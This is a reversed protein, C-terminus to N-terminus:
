EEYPDTSYEEEDVDQPDPPDQDRIWEAIEDHDELEAGRIATTDWPCPPDQSRLWKLIEFWGCEAAERCTSEDWPCPPDQSRLWRLTEFDGRAAARTCATSDWDCPMPLEYRLWKLIHIRGRSAAATTMASSWEFHPAQPATQLWQVIELHGWEIAALVCRENAPCPPQQSLLWQLTSLHGDRAASAATERDWPCPPDLNRLWQLTILRVNVAARSCLEVSWFLSDPDYTEDDTEAAPMSAIYLQPHCRLWQLIETHGNSAATYSISRTRSVIPCGREYAWQLLTVHNRAAVKLAFSFKGIRKDLVYYPRFQKIWQLVFKDEQNLFKCLYRLIDGPLKFLTMAHSCLTRM